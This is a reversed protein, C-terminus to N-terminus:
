SPLFGGEPLQPAGLGTGWLTSTRARKSLATTSQFEEQRRGQAHPRKGQAARGTCSLAAENASTASPPSESARKHLHPQPGPAQEPCGEFFLNVQACTAHM